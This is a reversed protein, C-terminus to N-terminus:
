VGDYNITFPFSCGNSNLVTGTMVFKTENTQEDWTCSGHVNTGDLIYFYNGTSLPQSLDPINASGAQLPPNAGNTLQFYASNNTWSWSYTCKPDNNTLVIDIVTSPYGVSICNIFGTQTTPGIKAKFQTPMAKNGFCAFYVPAYTYAQASSKCDLLQTSM